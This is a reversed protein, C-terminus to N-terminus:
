ISKRTAQELFLNALRVANSRCNLPIQEDKDFLVSSAAILIEVVGGPLALTEFPFDL